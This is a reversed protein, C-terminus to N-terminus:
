LGLKTRAIQFLIGGAALAFWTIGATIRSRIAKIEKTLDILKEELKVIRQETNERFRADSAADFNATM